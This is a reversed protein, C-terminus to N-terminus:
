RALKALQSFGYFAEERLPNDDKMLQLLTKASNGDPQEYIYALSVLKEEISGINLLHYLLQYPYEGAPISQGEQSAFKILWSAESPATRITPVYHTINWKIELAHSAADRVFWQDDSTSIKELLDNAWKEDILRLGSVAAKKGQISGTEALEKLIEYGPEPRFAMLEAVFNRPLDNGNILVDILIDVCEKNFIQFLSLCSAMEVASDPDALLGLISEIANSNKVKAYGLAVMQRVMPSSQKTLRQLLLSYSQPDASFIDFLRFRITAPLSEDLIIPLLRKALISYYKSVLKGKRLCRDALLLNRYLYPDEDAIWDSIFNKDGEVYGLICLDRSSNILNKWKTQIPYSPLHSILFCLISPNGFALIGNARETLFNQDIFYDIIDDVGTFAEDKDNQAANEPSQASQKRHLVNRATEDKEIIKVLDDRPIGVPNQRIIQDAMLLLTDWSIIGKTERSLYDYPENRQGPQHDFALNSWIEQSIELISSAQSDQMMWLSIFQHAIRRSEASEGNQNWAKIWLQLLQNRQVSTPSQICIEAFHLKQLKASHNPGVAAVIKLEPYKATLSGIYAVARQFQEPSLEDLGDLLLILSKKVLAQNFIHNLLEFDLKNNTDHLKNSLEEFISAAPGDLYNTESIHMFVPLLHNFGEVTSKGELIRSTFQALLTTKGSGIENTITLNRGGSLAQELSLLPAPLDRYEESNGLSIPFHQFLMPENEISYEPDSYFPHGILGLDIYIENLPFLAAALHTRQCKRLMHKKYLFECEGLYNFQKKDKRVQRSKKIQPQLKKIRSVIFVIILASVFGLIFSFLDIPPITM